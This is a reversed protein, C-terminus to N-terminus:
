SGGVLMNITDTIQQFVLVVQDLKQNKSDYYAKLGGDYGTPSKDEIILAGALGNFLNVSTSGHKHSHYWHTGPAQGMRMCPNNIDPNNPDCPPVYKPIRFCIPYSGVYYQPWRGNDIAGKNKPWLRLEKPYKPPGPLGHGSPNAGPGTYPATSDYVGILGKSFDQNSDKRGKKWADQWRGM